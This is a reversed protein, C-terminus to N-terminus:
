PISHPGSTNVGAHLSVAEQIASKELETNPRQSCHFFGMFKLLLEYLELEANNEKLRWSKGPLMSALRLDTIFVGSRGCYVKKLFFLCLVCM